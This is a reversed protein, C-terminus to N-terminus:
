GSFSSASPQREKPPTSRRSRTAQFRDKVLKSLDCPEDGDTSTLLPHYFQSKGAGVFGTNFDVAEQLFRLRHWEL